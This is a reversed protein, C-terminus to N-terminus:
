LFVIHSQPDYKHPEPYFGSASGQSSLWVGRHESSNPHSKCQDEEGTNLVDFHASCKTFCQSEVFLQGNYLKFHRSTQQESEVESYM